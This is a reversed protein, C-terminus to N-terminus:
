SIPPRYITDIGLLRCVKGLVRYAADALQPNETVVSARHVFIKEPVEEGLLYYQRLLDFERSTLREFAEPHFEYFDDLFCVEDNYRRNESSSSASPMAVYM